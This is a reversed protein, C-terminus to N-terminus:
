QRRSCLWLPKTLRRNNDDQNRNTEMQSSKGPLVFDFVHTQPRLWSRHHPSAINNQNCIVSCVQTKYLGFLSLSECSGSRCAKWYNYLYGATTQRHYPLPLVTQTSKQCYPKYPWNWVSSRLWAVDGRGDPPYMRGQMSFSLICSM